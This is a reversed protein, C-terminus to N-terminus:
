TVDGLLELPRIDLDVMTPDLEVLRDLREALVLRLDPEGGADVGRELEPDDPFVLSARLYVPRDLKSIPRSRLGFLDRASLYLGGNEYATTTSRALARRRERIRLTLASTYRTRKSM